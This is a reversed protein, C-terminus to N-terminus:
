LGTTEQEFGAGAVMRYRMYEELFILFKGGKRTKEM